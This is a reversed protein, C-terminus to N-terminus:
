QLLKFDRIEECAEYLKQGVEDIWKRAEEPNAGAPDGIVGIKSVDKTMWGFSLLGSYDIYKLGEFDVSYDKNILDKRVLDPKIQMIMSTETRGAHIGVRDEKETTVGTLDPSIRIMPHLAFAYLGTEIRLERCIVDIVEQNGGHGNIFVIKKFGARSISRGIDMLVNVYTNFSYTITGPFDIHENSKGFPMLPLFLGPFNNKIILEKLTKTFQECIFSDTGVPLHPGHQEVAAIPVFAISEKALEKIENSTYYWLDVSKM